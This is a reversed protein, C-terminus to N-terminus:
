LLLHPVRWLGARGAGNCVAQSPASGHQAMSRGAAGQQARGPRLVIMSRRAGGLGMGHQATSRGAGGRSGGHQATSRALWKAPRPAAAPAFEPQSLEVAVEAAAVRHRSAGGGGWPVALESFAAKPGAAKCRTRPFRRYRQLYLTGAEGGPMLRPSTALRRSVKDCTCLASTSVGDSRGNFFRVLM